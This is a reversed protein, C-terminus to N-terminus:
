VRTPPRTRNTASPASRAHYRIKITTGAPFNHTIYARIDARSKNHAFVRALSGRFMPTVYGTASPSHLDDQKQREVIARKICSFLKNWEFTHVRM